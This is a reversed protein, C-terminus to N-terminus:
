GHKPFNMHAVLDSIFITPAGGGAWPRQKSGPVDQHESRQVKQKLLAPPLQELFIERGFADKM